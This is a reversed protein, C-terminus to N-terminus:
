DVYIVENLNLVVKCLMTLARRYSVVRNRHDPATRYMRELYDMGIAAERETPSRGMALRFLRQIGARADKGIEKLLRDACAAAQEDMFRSNLLILAQPAITTTARAATPSDASAMDFTELFPVGLTRKVFIYVSRRCQEDHSSQDWGLGPRSQTSLVEKSLSPFFGRGGMKLNLQGSIALITDRIAEAELRRMNQRWLLKNGPDLAVARENASRSSQQYTRSMLILKHMRKIRWGGDMFDAALWDLLEPHTPPLGTHGFDSPTPVIGSGFHYHWLRNVLVRATLPNARSAIWGALVRRRGSSTAGKGPAPIQPVTANATPCLVRVFRPAVERAPTAASGRLLVHTPKTQPGFERVALTFGGSKLRAFGSMGLDKKPVEYPRINRLFALMSYYDEQAMPDFKHDHCRACGLTIGLFATCTVTLMDDLNDFEAQKADDPEDDWVGLRYFATAIISDDTVNDLEDGALQELIFRDYPKDENFSKIVYDRFRWSNPKEDDREYGSTQAFRVVDLWHRGWREGYQPRSLLEDIMRSYADPSNDALYADMEEPRPPLGILDYYVRRILERKSAPPLLTLGKEHLKQAIFADIPNISELGAVRPPAHKTVPQYAWYRRDQDTVHMESGSHSMPAAAARSGPWPLGMKVWASLAVVENKKLKKNPPMELGGQYNIAQIIRSHAPQGPAAAPGSEGGHLIAERSDLRLKGRQKGPGHCRYCNNALVPRVQTEFFQVQEPSPSKDQAVAATVPWLILCIAPLCIGVSNQTMGYDRKAAMKGPLAVTLRRLYAEVIKVIDAFLESYIKKSNGDEGTASHPRRRKAPNPSRCHQNRGCTFWIDSL